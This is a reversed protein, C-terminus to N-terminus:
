LRWDEGNGLRTMEVLQEGIVRLLVGIALGAGFALVMWFWAM